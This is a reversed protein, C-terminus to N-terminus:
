WEGRSDQLGGGGRQGGGGDGDLDGRGWGGPTEERGEMGVVLVRGRNAEETFHPCSQTIWRPGPVLLM